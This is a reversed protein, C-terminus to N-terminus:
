GGFANLYAKATYRTESCESRDAIERLANRNAGLDQVARRREELSSSTLATRLCQVDLKEIMERGAKSFPNIGKRSVPKVGADTPRPGTMANTLVMLM